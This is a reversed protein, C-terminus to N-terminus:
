PNTHARCTNPHRCLHSSHTQKGSASTIPLQLGGSTPGQSRPKIMSSYCVSKVASSDRWGSSNIKTM